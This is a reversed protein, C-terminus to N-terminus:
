LKITKKKEKDYNIVAWGLSSIGIDLGLIKEIM